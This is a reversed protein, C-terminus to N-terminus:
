QSALKLADNAKNTLFAVESPLPDILYSASFNSVCGAAKCISNTRTGSLRFRGISIGLGRSVWTPQMM